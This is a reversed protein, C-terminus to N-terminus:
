RRFGEKFVSLKWYIGSVIRQKEVVFAEVGRQPEQSLRGSLLHNKLSRGSLEGMIKDQVKAASTLTPNKKDQRITRIARPKQRM